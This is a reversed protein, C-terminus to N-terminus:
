NSCAALVMTNGMKKGLTNKLKLQMKRKANLASALFNLGGAPFKRDQRRNLAPPWYRNQLLIFM